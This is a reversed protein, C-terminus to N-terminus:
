NRSKRDDAAEVDAPVKEVKGGRMPTAREKYGSDSPLSGREFVLHTTGDGYATKLAYRVMGQDTPEM